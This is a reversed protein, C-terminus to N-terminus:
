PGLTGGAIFKPIVRLARPKNAGLQLMEILLQATKRGLEVGDVRYHSIAPVTYRLFEDDWGAILAIDEPLRIRAQLLLCLVAICHEPCGSYFATPRPKAALLGEVIKQLAPVEPEHTVIQARGGLRRTEAEFVQAGIRDGLSTFESTLYVVERHGRRYLMGAAHRACAGTDLYVCPITVGEHAPGLAVCVRQRAAFWRQMPERSYLLLWAGTDPLADLRELEDPVHRKFLLPRHEFEMRYGLPGLREVLQEIVVHHVSGLAHMPYPTLLRVTRGREVSPQVQPARIHHHCGRGGL